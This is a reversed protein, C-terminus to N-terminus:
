SGGMPPIPRSVKFELTEYQLTVMMNKLRLEGHEWDEDGEDGAEATVQQSPIEDPAAETEHIRNLGRESGQEGTQDRAEQRPGQRQEGQQADYGDHHEADPDPETRRAAGSQNPLGFRL